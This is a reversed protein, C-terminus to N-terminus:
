KKQAGKQGALKALVELYHQRYTPNDPELHTATRYEKLARGVDGLKELSYGLGNHADADTPDHRLAEQMEVKARKWEKALLFSIGLERHLDSNEPDMKTAEHLLEVAEDLRGQARLRVAHQVNQRLQIRIEAAELPTRPADLGASNGPEARITLTEGLHPSILYATERPQNPCHVHLYHDSPDVDHVVLIGQSDTKGAPTSDIEVACGPRGTNM